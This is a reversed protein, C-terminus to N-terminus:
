TGFDRLDRQLSPGAEMSTSRPLLLSWGLSSTGVLSTNLHRHSERGLSLFQGSVKPSKNACVMALIRRLDTQGLESPFYGLVEGSSDSFWLCPTSTPNHFHTMLLLFMGPSCQPYLINWLTHGASDICGNVMGEDPLPYAYTKPKCSSCHPSLLAFFTDCWHASRLPRM